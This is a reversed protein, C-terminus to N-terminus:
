GQAQLDQAFFFAEDRLADNGAVMFTVIPLRKLKESEVLGVDPDIEGKEKVKKGMCNVFFELVKGSQVPADDCQIRSAKEKQDYKEYSIKEKNIILWPIGLVLGRIEVMKTNKDAMGNRALGVSVALNAGASVGGVVLKDVDGGFEKANQWLWDFADLADNHAAPFPYQPAHRYNVHFVVIDM